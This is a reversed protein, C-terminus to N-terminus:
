ATRPAALNVHDLDYATIQKTTIPQQPESTTILSSAIVPQDSVVTVPQKQEISQPTAELIIERNSPTKPINYNDEPQETQQQEELVLTDASAVQRNKNQTLGTTEAAKWPDSHRPQELDIDQPLFDLVSDPLDETATIIKRNREQLEEQTMQPQKEWVLVQEKDPTTEHQTTPTEQEPRENPTPPPPASVKTDSQGRSSQEVLDKDKLRINGGYQNELDSIKKNAVDIGSIFATTVTTPRLEQLMSDKSETTPLVPTSTPNAEPALGVSSADVGFAQINTFDDRIKGDFM